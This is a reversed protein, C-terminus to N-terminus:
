RIINDAIMLLEAVFLWLTPSYQFISVFLIITSPTSVAFYHHHNELSSIPLLHYFFTPAFLSLKFLKSRSYISGGEKRIEGKQFHRRCKIDSLLVQRFNTGIESAGVLRKKPVSFTVGHVFKLPILDITQTPACPTRDPWTFLKNENM